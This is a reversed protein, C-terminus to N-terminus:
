CLHRLNNWTARYATEVTISVLWHSQSTASDSLLSDALLKPLPNTSFLQKWHKYSGIDGSGRFKCEPVIFSDFIIWKGFLVCDNQYNQRQTWYKQKRARRVRDNESGLFVLLFLSIKFSFHFTSCPRKKKQWITIPFNFVRPLFLFFFKIVVQLNILVKSASLLNRRRVRKKDRETSFLVILFDEYM